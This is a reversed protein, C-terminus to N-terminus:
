LIINTMSVLDIVDINNNNKITGDARYKLREKQSETLQINGTIHNIAMQIDIINVVGDSNLDFYPIETDNHINAFENYNYNPIPDGNNFTLNSYQNMNGYVQYEQDPMDFGHNGDIGLYHLQYAKINISDTGVNTEMIIWLPYVPQGNVFDVKSYDINFIKENNILPIHIKDGVALNVYNLPLKMNVINHTNCNNMITYNAFDEVSFKDTHYKLEIEKYGDIELMNYNDYGTNKYEPLLTDISKNLELNYKDQGYDYRYFMKVSTIIDERKTQEFKYSIIDNINIIKDIDDYVYSEKINILGFKGDSTFMPYSKSEKLIDEILEKGNEKKSVTFGMEWNHINRSEDISQMDFKNYDPIIIHSGAYQEFLLKGYEMENVLINMVIDSPKKIVGDSLHTEYNLGTIEYAIYTELQERFEDLSLENGELHSIGKLMPYQEIMSDYNNLIDFNHQGEPNVILTSLAEAMSKQVAYVLNDFYVYFNNFWDDLTEINYDNWNNGIMKEEIADTINILHYNPNNFLGEIDNNINYFLNFEADTEIDQQYLYELIKVGYANIMTEYFLYNLGMATESTESYNHVNIMDYMALPSTIAKWIFNKWFYYINYIPSDDIINQSYNSQFIEEPNAINNSLLYYLNAGGTSSNETTTFYLPSIDTITDAFIRKFSQELLESDPITGDLGKLISTLPTNPDFEADQTYDSQQTYYINKRGVISAYIEEEQLDDVLVSHLFGINNMKLGQQFQNVGEWFPPYYEFVAILDHEDASNTVLNSNSGDQGYYLGQINRWDQISNLGNNTGNMGWYSSGGDIINNRELAIICDRFTNDTPAFANQLWNNIYTIEETDADIEIADQALSLSDDNKLLLLNLNAQKAEQTEENNILDKWVELSIPAVFFGTRDIGSALSTDNPTSDGTYSQYMSWDCCLFTNGIWNSHLRNILNNSIGKKLKLIIWRGQGGSTTTPYSKLNTDFNDINSTIDDEIRYWKTEYGGNDNIREINNFELNSLDEVELDQINLISGDSAYVSEVLRQFYGNMSWLKFKDSDDNEQLEPILYNTVGQNNTTIQLKSNFNNQLYTTNNNHDLIIYDDEKKVYLCYNDSTPTNSTLLKPIKATKYNASTPQTDLLINMIRDNNEELYPLVPAKDVKGFTMPVVNDSDNYEPLIREKIELPLKDVSNYPVNKDAIKIQTKDEVSINISQDDFSVRSVEGAYILACDYDTQDNFLNIINTSPSKYFLYLNKNVINTNIYQSLKTNIDYYNYLTCRLRNIKLTKSDYDNSIKVNSVKSISNIVDVSDGNIDFIEEQDQSLAFLVDDNSDTIVIIPKLTQNPEITDLKFYKSYNQM